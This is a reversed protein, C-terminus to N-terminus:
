FRVFYNLWRGVPGTLRLPADTVAICVCDEGPDAVPRHDVSTDAIAVDGRLYHGQSDSFGGSLVMTIEAGEHTHQPVAAGAKIKLLRTKFADQEPLLAVESVPVRGRWDLEELSRALYGRLPQPVRLDGEAQSSRSAPIDFEVPAEDLQSLVAQLSDDSLACPKLSDLLAGGVQELEGIQRRCEPCLASHTAVLLALPEELHGAAYAQLLEEGPHFHPM